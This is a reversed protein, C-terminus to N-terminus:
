DLHLEALSAKLQARSFPKELVAPAGRALALTSVPLASIVVVPVRSLIASDRIKQLFEWGNTGKLQLDLTILSLDQQPAMALAEEASAARLVTFGEAHLLLRLLEAAQDDDEVVLAVLEKPEAPAAISPGASPPLTATGYNT